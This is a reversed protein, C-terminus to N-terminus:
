SGQPGRAVRALERITAQGQRRPHIGPQRPEMSFCPYTHQKDDGRSSLSALRYPPSSFCSSLTMDGFLFSCIYYNIHFPQPRRRWRRPDIMHPFLIFYLGRWGEGSRIKIKIIITISIFPDLLFSAFFLPFLHIRHSLFLSRFHFFSLFFSLPPLYFALLGTTMPRNHVECEGMDAIDPVSYPVRGKKIEERWYAVRQYTDHGFRRYMRHLFGHIGDYRFREDVVRNHNMEFVAQLFRCRLAWLYSYERLERQKIKCSSSPPLPTGDPRCQAEYFALQKNILILPIAYYRPMLCMYNEVDDNDIRMIQVTTWPGDDDPNYSVDCRPGSGHSPVLVGEKSPYKLEFKYRLRYPAKRPSM